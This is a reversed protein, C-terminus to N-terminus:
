VTILFSVISNFNFLDVKVSDNAISMIRNVPSASAHNTKRSFVYLVVTERQPVVFDLSGEPSITFGNVLKFSFNRLM